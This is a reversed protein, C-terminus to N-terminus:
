LLSIEKKVIEWYKREPADKLVACHKLFSIIEDVSVLAAGKGLETDSEGGGYSTFPAVEMAMKDVLEKAKEKPTM